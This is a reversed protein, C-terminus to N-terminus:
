GELKGYRSEHEDILRIMMDRVRKAAHPSMVIRHQLAVELKEKGMDWNQNVGFNVVVEERTSSGNCVNCYSSKLESTNFAIQSAPTPRTGKAEPAGNPETTTKTDPSKAM